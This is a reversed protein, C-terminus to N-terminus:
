FNNCKKYLIVFKVYLVRTNGRLSNESVSIMILVASFGCFCSAWIYFSILVTNELCSKDKRALVSQGIQIYKKDTIGTHSKETSYM